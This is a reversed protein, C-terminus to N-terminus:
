NKFAPFFNVILAEMFGAASKYGKQLGIVKEVCPVALAALLEPLKHPQLRM